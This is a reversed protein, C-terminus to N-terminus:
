RIIGGLARTSMVDPYKDILYRKGPIDVLVASM